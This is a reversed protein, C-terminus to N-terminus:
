SGGEKTPSNPDIPLARIAAAIKGAAQSPFGDGHLFQDAVRAARERMEEAARNGEAVSRAPAEACHFHYPEGAIVRFSAPMGIKRACGACIVPASTSDDAM